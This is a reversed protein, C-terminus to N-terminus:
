GPIESLEILWEPHSEIKALTDEVELRPYKKFLELTDMTNLDDILEPPINKFAANFDLLYQPLVILSDAAKKVSQTIVKSNLVKRYLNNLKKQKKLYNM